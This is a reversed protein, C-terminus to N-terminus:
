YPNDSSPVAPRRPAIPRLPTPRPAPKGTVSPASSARATSATTATTVVAAPAVSDTSASPAPSMASATVMAAAPAVASTIAAVSRPRLWPVRDHTVYLAIAAAAAVVLVAPGARHRRRPSRKAVWAVSPTATSVPIGVGDVTKERAPATSAVARRIAALAADDVDILKVGMGSPRGESAVTRMWVVRGLASWPGDAGVRLELALRTGRPAPRTTPLFMGGTSLDLADAGEPDRAASEYTVHVGSVRTRHINRREQQM